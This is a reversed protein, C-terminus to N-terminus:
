SQRPIRTYTAPPNCTLLVCLRRIRRTERAIHALTPTIIATIDARAIRELTDELVDPRDAPAIVVGVVTLGHCSAIDRAAVELEVALRSMRGRDMFIIATKPITM